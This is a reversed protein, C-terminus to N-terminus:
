RNSMDANVLQGLRSGQMDEPEGTGAGSRAFRSLETERLKLSAMVRSLEARLEAMEEAGDAAVM